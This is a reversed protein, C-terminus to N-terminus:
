NPNITESLPPKKLDTRLSAYEEPLSGLERLAYAHPPPSPDVNMVKSSVGSTSRVDDLSM